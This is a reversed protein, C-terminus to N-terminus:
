PEARYQSIVQRADGQVREVSCTVEERGPRHQNELKRGRLFSERALDPKGHCFQSLGLFYWCRADGDANSM